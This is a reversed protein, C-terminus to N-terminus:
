INSITNQYKKPNTTGQLTLLHDIVYEKPSFTVLNISSTLKNFVSIMQDLHKRKITKPSFKCEYCHLIKELKVIIDWTHSNYDGINIKTERLIELQNKNSKKIFEYTLIELFNGRLEGLDYKEFPMWVQFISYIEILMNLDHKIALSHKNFKEEYETQSKLYFMDNIYNLIHINSCNLTINILKILYQDNEFKEKTKLNNKNPILKYNM